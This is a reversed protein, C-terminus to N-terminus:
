LDLTRSSSSDIPFYVFRQHRGYADYAGSIQHALIGAGVVCLRACGLRSLSDPMLLRQRVHMPLHPAGTDVIFRPSARMMLKSEQEGEVKGGEKRGGEVGVSRGGVPTEWTGGAV